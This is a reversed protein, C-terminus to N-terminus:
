NLDFLRVGLEPTATTSSSGHDRRITPAVVLDGRSSPRLSSLRFRPRSSTRRLARQRVGRGARAVVRRPLWGYALGASSVHLCRHVSRSWVRDSVTEHSDGQRACFIAGVCGRAVM